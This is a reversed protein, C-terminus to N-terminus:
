RTNPHIELELWNAGLTERALRVTLITEEATKTGSTNPSLTVGAAVLPELIADSHQRSDTREMTLTVLQNGSARIVEVMLQSSAFRGTGIFLHSDFTKDAICLM